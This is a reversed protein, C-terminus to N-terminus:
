SSTNPNLFANSIFRGSVPLWPNDVDIDSSILEDFQKITPFVRDRIIVGINSEGMNAKLYFIDLSNFLADYIM